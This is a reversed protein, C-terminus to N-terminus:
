QSILILCHMLAQSILTRKKASAMDWGCIWSHDFTKKMVKCAFVMNETSAKKKCKLYICLTQMSNSVLCATLISLSLSLGQVALDNVWGWHMCYLISYLCWLLASLSWTHLGFHGMCLSCLTILIEDACFAKVDDLFRFTGTENEQGADSDRATTVATVMRHLLITGPWVSHM